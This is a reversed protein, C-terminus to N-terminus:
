NPARTKLNKFSSIRVNNLDVIIQPFSALINVEVEDVEMSTSINDNIANLAVEKWLEGNALAYAVVGGVSIILILFLVIVIRKKTM